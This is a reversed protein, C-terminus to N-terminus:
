ESETRVLLHNLFIWLLGFLFFVVLLMIVWIIYGSLPDMALFGYIPESYLSDYIISYVLYIVPYILWILSYSWDYHQSESLIFDIIFLLTSCLHIIWDNYGDLGTSSEYLLGYYVTTVVLTYSLFAGRLKGQLKNYLNQNNRWLLALMFWFFLFYLNQMSFYHMNNFGEGELIRLIRNSVVTFGIVLFTIIRYYLLQTPSIWRSSYVLNNDSKNM